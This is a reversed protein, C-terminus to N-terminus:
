LGYINGKLHRGGDVYIVQGTIFDSGLLFLVADAVGDASGIKELPNSTRLHELWSDDRGSPPLILGPAVANIRMAPAMSVALDRTLTYLSRKALHYSAHTPDRDAIRTDLINVVSVERRQRSMANILALPSLVHISMSESLTKEDLTDYSDEPFASASNVLIDIGGTERILASIWEHAQESLTLDFRSKWTRRNRAEIESAVQDAEAESSNYHIIVNCGTRALRLAISRGLRVAAGTVLATKGALTM